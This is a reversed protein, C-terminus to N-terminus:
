KNIEYMDFCYIIFLLIILYVIKRHKEKNKKDFESTVIWINFRYSYDVSYPGQTTQRPM